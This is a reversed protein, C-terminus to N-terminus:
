VKGFRRKWRAPSSEWNNLDIKTRQSCESQSYIGKFIPEDHGTQADHVPGHDGDHGPLHSCEFMVEDQLTIVAKARYLRISLDLFAMPCVEFQCDWGGIEKLLSTSLVGEMVMLCDKPIHKSKSGDHTNILYYKRTNMFPNEGEGEYYKGIIVHNDPKEKLNDLAIKLSGITFAGDDAAWTTYKGQCKLLGLQMCRVPSGFDTILSFNKGQLDDPLPYPSIVIMEFDNGNTSSIISDYLRRLNQPRISPVIVSLDM